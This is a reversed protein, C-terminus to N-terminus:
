DYANGRFCIDYVYVVQSDLDARFIIRCKGSRIRFFGQWNGKLKKIDLEDFPIAQRKELSDKLRIIKSRIGQQQTSDLKPLFKSASKSFEVKM